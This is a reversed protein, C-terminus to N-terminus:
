LWSFAARFIEKGGSRVIAGHGVVMQEFDWDLIRDISERLLRSDLVVPRFIHAFCCGRGIVAPALVRTIWADELSINFLLDAVILTRSRRHFFVAEDLFLGLGGILLQDIQGDWKRPADSSLASAFTWNPHWKILTPPAYFDANPYSDMYPKLFMDHWWSPAVISSVRGLEALDESINADLKTPSHVLISNDDLQIVTMRHWLPIVGFRIAMNHTWIREGISELM